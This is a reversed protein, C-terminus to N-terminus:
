PKNTKNKKCHHIKSGWITEGCKSCKRFGGGMVVKRRDYKSKEKLEEVSIEDCIPIGEINNSSKLQCLVVYCKYKNYCLGNYCEIDGNPNFGICTQLNDHGEVYIVDEIAIPKKQIVFDIENLKITKFKQLKM